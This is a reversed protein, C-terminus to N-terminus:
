DSGLKKLAEGYDDFTRKVAERILERREEPVHPVTPTRSSGQSEQKITAAYFKKM